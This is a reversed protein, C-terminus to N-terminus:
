NRMYKSCDSYPTFKPPNALYSNNANLTSNFGQGFSYAKNGYPQDQSPDRGETYDSASNMGGRMTRRRRISRKKSRNRRISRRHRRTRYKKSMKGGRTKRMCGYQIKRRRTKGGKLSSRFEPPFNNRFLTTNDDYKKIESYPAKPGAVPGISSDNFSYGSNGGVKFPSSYLSAAADVGSKTGDCGIGGVKGFSNGYKEVQFNFNSPERNYSM